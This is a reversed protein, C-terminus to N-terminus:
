EFPELIFGNPSIPLRENTNTMAASDTAQELVPVELAGDM